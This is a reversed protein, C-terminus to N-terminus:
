EADFVLLAPENGAKTQRQGDVILRKGELGWFARGRWLNTGKWYVVGSRSVGALSTGEGEHLVLLPRDFGSAFVGARGSLDVIVYRSRRFHPSSQPRKGRRRGLNQESDFM